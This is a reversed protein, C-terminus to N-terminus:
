LVRRLHITVHFTAATSNGGDDSYVYLTDSDTIYSGATSTTGEELDDSAGTQVQNPGRSVGSSNPNSMSAPLAAVGTYFTLGNSGAGDSYVNIDDVYWVEGASPTFSTQINTFTGDGSWTFSITNENVAM